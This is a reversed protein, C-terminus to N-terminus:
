GADKGSKAIATLHKKFAADLRKLAYPLHKLMPYHPPLGRRGIAQQVGRAFREAEANQRKNLSATGKFREGVGLKVIGLEAAKRKAWEVLPALPPYFPRAGQEIVGSHPANAELRIQIRDHGKGPMRVKRIELGAKYEGRDVPVDKSRVIKRRTQLASEMAAKPIAKRINAERKKQEHVAATLSNFKLNQPM